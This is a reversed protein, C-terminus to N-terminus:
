GLLADLAGQDDFHQRFRKVYEARTFRHNQAGINELVYTAALAGMRGALAWPVRLQMGRMLGGRFADGVGTPDAVQQPPVVPIEYEQSTPEQHRDPDFRSLIFKKRTGAM